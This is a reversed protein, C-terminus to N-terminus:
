VKQLQQSKIFCLFAQLEAKLLDKLIYYKKKPVNLTASISQKTNKMCLKELLSFLVKLSSQM